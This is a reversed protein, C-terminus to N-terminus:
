AWQSLRPDDHFRAGHTYRLGTEDDREKAHFLYPTEFSGTHEEVFTEGLPSYEVHQVVTGNINTVYTTSGTLDYHFFKRTM